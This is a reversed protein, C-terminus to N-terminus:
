KTYYNYLMQAMEGRTMGSSPMFYTASAILGNEKAYSVNNAYWVNSPVDFYPQGSYFSITVGDVARAANVLMTVAEARSVANGPRFTGDSYGQVIGLAVATNVYPAYWAGSSTDKFYPYTQMYVTDVELADLIVKVAEARNIVQNPKFTGDNYGRFISNSVAWSVAECYPSNSNMDRFSSCNTTITVNRDYKDDDDDNEDYDSDAEVSFNGIEVEKGSGNEAILKYQYVGDDVYDRFDDKGNWSITNNGSSMDEEEVVTTVVYDNDRIELTVDASSALRFNFDLKGSSPDYPIESVMDKYIEPKRGTSNDEDIIIEGEATYNGDSNRVYIKYTYTGEEFDAEEGDWKINYTGPKRADRDLLTVLEDGDDDFITIEIDAKTTLTYVIETTESKGPDFSEKTVYVNRLRPTVTRNDNDNLRKVKLYGRETDHDGPVSAEIEFEYDGQDVIDGYQDEGNWFVTHEGEEFYDDFAIYDVTDGDEDFIELSVYADDNIEFTIEAEENDWPDFTRNEIDLDTIALGGAFATATLSHTLINVIVAKTLWKKFSTFM